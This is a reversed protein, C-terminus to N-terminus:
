CVVGYKGLREKVVGKLQLESLKQSLEVVGVRLKRGLEDMDLSERELEEVIKKEVADKSGPTANTLEGSHFSINMAGLVDEGSTVLVAGKKILGNTAMAQSSGVPGPVALIKKGQKKTLKATILTGSKEGGEIVLCARSLGAVIRNRQPFMWRRAKENEEYESIVLGGSELIQSYLKDNRKPTFENLGSGLVAITKGRYDLCVQHAKSDVGYMFGSVITVGAQVVRPLIKEVASEGYNTMKRSGVVALCNKFIEKDWNGRFYLKKVRPRVLKLREPWLKDGEKIIEIGWERWSKVNEGKCPESGQTLIDMHGTYIIVAIKPLAIKIMDEIASGVFKINKFIYDVVQGEGM